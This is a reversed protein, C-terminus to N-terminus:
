IITVVILGQYNGTGVSAPLGLFLEAECLFTGAGSLPGASCLEQPQGLGTLATGAILHGLWEEATNASALGASVVSADGALVSARPVWGLNGAPICTRALHGAESCIPVTADTTGDGDLDLPTTPTGPAGLDTAYASVTFGVGSNPLNTVTIAQLEGSSVQPNGDITVESLTVEAGAQDMWRLPQVLVTVTFPESVLGWADAVTLVIQESGINPDTNTYTLTGAPDVSATGGAPGSTITLTALDVDGNVDQCLPALDVLTTAGPGGVTSTDTCTPPTPPIVVEFPEALAPLVTTGDPTSGPACTLTSFISGFFHSTTVTAAVQSLEIQGGTPTWSTAPPFVTLDSATVSEDGSDKVGDPDTITVELSTTASVTQQVEATASGAVTVSATVGAFNSGVSYYGLTYLRLFVADPIDVDMRLDILDIRDLAITSAVGGTTIPVNYYEASSSRLCANDTTLTGAGALDVQVWTLVAAAIAAVTMGALATVVRHSTRM